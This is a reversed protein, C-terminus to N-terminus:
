RSRTLLRESILFRRFERLRVLQQASLVKGDPKASFEILCYVAGTVLVVISISLLFSFISSEITITLVAGLAAIVLGGYFYLRNRSLISHFEDDTLYNRSNNDFGTVVPDGQFISILEQLGVEYNETFDLWQFRQLRYYLEYDDQLVPIVIKGKNIAYNCEDLVNKSEMSARSVIPVFFDCSNIANQISIDWENKGIKGPHIEQTDMWVDFGAVRLDSYIREAFVKEKRSYSIFIQHKSNELEM